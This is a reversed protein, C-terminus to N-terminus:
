SDTVLIIIQIKNFIQNKVKVGHYDDFCNEVKRAKPYKYESMM